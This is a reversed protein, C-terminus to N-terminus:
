DGKYDWYKGRYIEKLYPDQGRTLTAPSRREGGVPDLRYQTGEGVEGFWPRVEGVKVDLPRRVEYVYYDERMTGPKLAREGYSTGMPSLFSGGPAGFRDIKTGPMLTYSGEIGAVTGPYMPWERDFLGVKRADIKSAARAAASEELNALALSFM